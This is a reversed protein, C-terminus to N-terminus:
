RMQSPWVIPVGDGLSSGLVTVVVDACRCMMRFGRLRAKTLSLPHLVQEAAADRLGPATHKEFCIPEPSFRDIRPKRTVAAPCTGRRRERALETALRPIPDRPPISDPVVQALNYLVAGSRFRLVRRSDLLIGPFKRECFIHRLHGQARSQKEKADDHFGVQLAPSFPLREHVLM